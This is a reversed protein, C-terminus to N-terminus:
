RRGAIWVVASTLTLADVSRSRRHACRDAARLLVRRRDADGVRCRATLRVTGSGTPVDIFRARDGREIGSDSSRITAVSTRSSPPTPGAARSSNSSIRSAHGRLLPVDARAGARAARRSPQKVGVVPPGFPIGRRLILRMLTDELKGLDTASDRPNTKRIHAFHPCVAGLMDAKAQAFTDGAYGPIARMSPPRTDDDFFFHNNAFPDGALAADDSAPDRM